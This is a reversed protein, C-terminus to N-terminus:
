KGGWFAAAEGQYVFGSSLARALNGRPSRQYDGYYGKAEGTLMVHWVHHYDDNWQGRYKGCPPEKAPDLLSERTDGNELVLHIHRETQGAVEGVAAGGGDRIRMEGAEIM